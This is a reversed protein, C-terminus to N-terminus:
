AVAREVWTTALQENLARTERIRSKLQDCLSMLEDVKAVIRHQEAIPPVPVLFQSLKGISLGERSVGVQVDMVAKQVLESMLVVHLFSRMDALVPRMVTVHQSVNGTDFDDPVLACRGISAGTINFLLDGAEVHTGRMRKHTAPPIFAVDSLRLGSNWVNQSRLFKIGKEVYAKKGGLPTSGAGIRRLLSELRVWEWTNPVRTPTEEKDIKTVSKPARIEGESILMKKKAAIQKLLESAPADDAVQPVLKGTVALQLLTQKLADISAETTFLTDFHESLRKWSAAFDEADSAQTLSDLLAQVLQAHAGEANIQQAELADCLAMLEDVKAVIRHQERVPPLGILSNSIQAGSLHDVTTYAKVGQLQSLQAQLAEAVFRRALESSFFVLRSVRQNLLSDSGTWLAVRFEGDMSILYDGHRVVFEPRFDGDFFTGSFPQGVDRIRILPLGLGAQNFGGSKFAFGAQSFAVDGLRAWTWSSPLEFPPAQERGESSQKEKRIAGEALLRSKEAAIRDLLDSAPEDNPDQPVLKGRVALELILERLKKIGSPAGTLLPLHDTLVTM